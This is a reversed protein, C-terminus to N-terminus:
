RRRSKKTALTQTSDAPELYEVTMNYFSESDRTVKGIALIKLGLNDFIQQYIENQTLSYERGDDRRLGVEIVNTYEDWDWPVIWATVRDGPPRPKKKPKAITDAPAPPGVPVLLSDAAQRTSTSDFTQATSDAAATAATDASLTSDVPLGAATDATAPKDQVAASVSDQASLLSISASVVLVACIFITKRCPKM